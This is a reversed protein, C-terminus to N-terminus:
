TGTRRLAHARSTSRWLLITRATRRLATGTARWPLTWTSRRRSERLAGAAATPRTAAVIFSGYARLARARSNGLSFWALREIRALRCCASPRQDLLAVCFAFALQM